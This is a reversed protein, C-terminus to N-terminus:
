AEREAALTLELTTALVDQHVMRATSAASRQEYKRRLADSVRQLTAADTVLSAEVDWSREGAHLLGRRNDRLRRYWAGQEGRVSRVFVSGADVVIWIVTRRSASGDARLPQIDVERTADLVDLDAASFPSVTRLRYRM